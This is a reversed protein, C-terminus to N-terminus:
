KGKRAEAIAHKIRATAIQCYRKDQEILVAGKRENVCAIGTTGSGAFPDLVTGGPPTVLRVLYEMLKVPKVTSHNNRVHSATRGAGARPSKLGDTGEKRDVAQAGTVPPLDECGAEREARSAKATYFFRAKDGLLAIPCDPHCDWAEITETGDPDAFGQDDRAGITNVNGDIGGFLAQGGGHRQVATGTKVERTGCPRCRPDHTLLINAPWRGSTTDHKRGQPYKKGHAVGGKAEFQGSHPTNCREMAKADAPETRIRTGDVNIGGTGHELVNAAVTGCLPKRAMVIPEHSPKLATGWGEWRRAEDTAPTTIDYEGEKFGSEGILKMGVNQGGTGKGVVERDAERIAADWKGDFGIVNRMVQWKHWNPLVHMWPDPRATKKWKAFRCAKFGCAGDIEARTKGSEVIATELWQKIQIVKGGIGPRKDIAKSVDLSKPFGQGYLWMLQDRIEFGADEIACAIRHYTRSGGFALLHAGPKLVRLVARWTDPDFSVGAKDWSKGMFGLEYPCDTVCADLSDAPLTALLERCDGHLLRIKPRTMAEGMGLVESVVV